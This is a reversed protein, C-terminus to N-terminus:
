ITMSAQIFAFFQIRYKHFISSVPYPVPYATSYLLLLANFSSM